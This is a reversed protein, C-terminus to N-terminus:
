AGANDVIELRRADLGEPWATGGRPIVGVDHVKVEELVEFDITENVQADASSITRNIRLKVATADELGFALPQKIVPAAPQTQAAKDASKDQASSTLLTSPSLLCVSLLSSCIARM